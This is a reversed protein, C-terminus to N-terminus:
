SVLNLYCNVLLLPSPSSISFLVTSICLMNWSIFGEISCILLIKKWFFFTLSPTIKQNLFLYWVLGLYCLVYLKSIDQNSSRLSIHTGHTRTLTHSLACTCSLFHSLMFKYWNEIKLLWLKRSKMKVGTSGRLWLPARTGAAWAGAERPPIIQCEIQNRKWGSGKGEGM